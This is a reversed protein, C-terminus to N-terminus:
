KKLSEIQKKLERAESRLDNIIHNYETDQTPVPSPHSATLGM